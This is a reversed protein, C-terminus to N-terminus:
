LTLQAQFVISGRRFLSSHKSCSAAEDPVCTMLAQNFHQVKEWSVSVCRLFTRDIIALTKSLLYVVFKNNLGYNGFCILRICLKWAPVTIQLYVHAYFHFERILFYLQILLVCCMYAYFLMSEVDHQYVRSRYPRRPFLNIALFFLQAVYLSVM